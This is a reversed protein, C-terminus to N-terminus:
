QLKRKELVEGKIEIGKSNGNRDRGVLSDGFVYFYLDEGALGNVTIYFVSANAQTTYYITVTNSSGADGSGFKNKDPHASTPFSVTYVKTLQPTDPPVVEFAALKCNDLAGNLNVSILQEVCNGFHAKAM